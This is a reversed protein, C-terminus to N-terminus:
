NITIRGDPQITITKTKGFGSVVITNGNPSQMTSTLIPFFFKQESTVQFTVQRPLTKVLIPTQDVGACRVSLQYTQTSSCGNPCKTVTYGNLVSSTCDTTATPKLQTVANSRATLLLSAVDDVGSKLTQARSYSIYGTIGVASVIAIISIVVLLEVLSFGRSSIM